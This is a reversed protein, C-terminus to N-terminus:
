NNFLRCFIDVVEAMAIETNKTYTGTILRLHKKHKTYKMLMDFLLRDGTFYHEDIDDSGHHFNITKVRNKYDTTYYIRRDDIETAFSQTMQMFQKHSNAQVKM